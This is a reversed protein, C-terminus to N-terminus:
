CNNVKCTKSLCGSYFNHLVKLIDKINEKNQKKVFDSMKLSPSINTCQGICLYLNLASSMKSRLLAKSKCKQLNLLSNLHGANQLLM